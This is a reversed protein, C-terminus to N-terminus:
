AVSHWAVGHWAMGRWAMGRNNRARARTTPTGVMGSYITASYITASTCTTGTRCCADDMVIMTVGVVLVEYRLTQRERNRLSVVPAYTPPHTPSHTSPRYLPRHTYTCIIIFFLLTRVSSVFRFSSAFLPPPRRLFRAVRCVLCHRIPDSQIPDSRIPNSRIPDSRARPNNNTIRGAVPVPVPVM